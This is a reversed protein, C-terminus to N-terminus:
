EDSSSSVLEERLQSIKIIIAHIKERVLVLDSESIHVSNSEETLIELDKGLADIKKRLRSRRRKERERSRKKEEAAAVRRADELEAEHLERERLRLEEAETKNKERQAELEDREYRWREAAMAQQEGELELKKSENALQLQKDSDRWAWILYAVPAGFVLTAVGTLLRFGKLRELLSLVHESLLWIFLLEVAVVILVQIPRKSGQQKLWDIM